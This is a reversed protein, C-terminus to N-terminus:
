RVTGVDVEIEPLHPEAADGGEAVVGEWGVEYGGGWVGKFESYCV